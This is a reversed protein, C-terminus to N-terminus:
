VFMEELHQQQGSSCHLSATSVSVARCVDAWPMARGWSREITDGPRIVVQDPATSHAHQLQPLQTIHQRLRYVHGADYPLTQM